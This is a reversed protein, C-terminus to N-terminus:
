QGLEEFLNKINYTPIYSVLKGKIEGTRQRLIEVPVYIKTLHNYGNEENRWIVSCIAEEGDYSILGFYPVCGESLSYGTWQKLPVKITEADGGYKRLSFDITFDNEISRTTFLNALSELPYKENYVLRFEEKDEGTREYYRNTNLRDTYYSQGPYIFYNDQWTPILQERSVTDPSLTSENENYRKIQTPLRRENEIMGSGHMLEYNNAFHISCLTTEKRRWSVSYNRGDHRDITVDVETGQPLELLTSFTGASFRIGDEAIQREATKPSIHPLQIELAYREIFDYVPSSWQNRIDPNFIQFGIHRVEGNRVIVTLPHGQYQLVAYHAGEGLSEIQDSLQMTKAMRELLDTNYSVQASLGSCWSEWVLLTLLWLSHTSSRSM